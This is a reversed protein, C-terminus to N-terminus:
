ASLESKSGEFYLSVYLSASSSSISWFSFPPVTLAGAPALTAAVLTTSIMSLSRSLMLSASFCLFDLGFGAALFFAEFDLAAQFEAGSDSRSRTQKSAISLHRRQPGSGARRDGDSDIPSGEPTRRNQCM